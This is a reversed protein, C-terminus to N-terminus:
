PKLYALCSGCPTQSLAQMLSMASELLSDPSSQSPKLAEVGQNGRTYFPALLYEEMWILISPSPHSFTFILIHTGFPGMAWCM